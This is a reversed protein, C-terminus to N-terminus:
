APVRLGLLVSVASDNAKSPSGFIKLCGIKLGLRKGALLMEGSITDFSQCQVQGSLWRREADKLIPRDSGFIRHQAKLERERPFCQKVLANQIWPDFPIEEFLIPGGGM